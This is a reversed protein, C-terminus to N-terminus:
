RGWCREGTLTRSWSSPRPVTTGAPGGAGVLALGGFNGVRVFVASSKGTVAAPIVLQGFFSADQMDPGVLVDCACGFRRELNAVLLGFRRREAPYDFGAPHELRDPDDLRRLSAVIEAPYPPTV